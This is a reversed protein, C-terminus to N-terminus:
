SKLKRYWSTMFYLSPDTRFASPSLHVQKQRHTEIIRYLKSYEFNLPNKKGKQPPHLAHCIFFLVKNLLALFM